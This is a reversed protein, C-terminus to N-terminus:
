GGMGRSEYMPSSDKDSAPNIKELIQAEERTHQICIYLRHIKTQSFNQNGHRAITYSMCQTQYIDKLHVVAECPSLM